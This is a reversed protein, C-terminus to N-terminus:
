VHNGTASVGFLPGLHTADIVFRMAVFDGQAFADQEAANLDPLAGIFSQLLPRRRQRAWLRADCLPSGPPSRGSVVVAPM